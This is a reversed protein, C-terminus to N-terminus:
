RKINRSIKPNMTRCIAIKHPNQIYAILSKREPRFKPPNSAVRADAWLGGVRPVGAMVARWLDGGQECKICFAFLMGAMM